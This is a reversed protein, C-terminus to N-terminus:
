LVHRIHVRLCYTLIHRINSLYVVQAVMELSNCATVLCRTRNKLNSLAQNSRLEDPPCTGISYRPEPGSACGTQSSLCTVESCIRTAYLRSTRGLWIRVISITLHGSNQNCEKLMPLRFLKDRISWSSSPYLKRKRILNTFM